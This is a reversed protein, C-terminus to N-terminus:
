QPDASVQLRTLPKDASDIFRACAGGQQDGEIVAFRLENRGKKLTILPSMDDDPNVARGMYVRIVEQGNLWWVSSDNSGIALKVNKIDDTAIVCTFGFFLCSAPNKGNDTAFQALDIQFDKVSVKRWMLEKGAVTLKDKDRPIATLQNRFYERAFMPKEVEANHDGVGELAIPDLVLWHQIFGEPNTPYTQLVAAPPAATVPAPTSAVTTSAPGPARTTAPVAEPACAALVLTALILCASPRIM